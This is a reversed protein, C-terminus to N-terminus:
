VALFYRYGDEGANFRWGTSPPLLTLRAVTEACAVYMMPQIKQFGTTSVNALSERITLRTM